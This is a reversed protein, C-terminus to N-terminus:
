VDEVETNFQQIHMTLYVLESEYVPKNLQQQMMKVIKVAINYCAPYQLKLLKELNRQEPPRDNIMVRQVAFSIHRVFRAYVLSDKDVQIKLDHEIIQVARAVVETMMNMERMTHNNISSHIHLAIFGKETDPFYVRLKDNLMDVVKTAIDFEKPYLAETEKLFPNAIVIGDELRKLAFIIHDTLSLLISDNVEGYAMEKITDVVEIVTKIVRDNTMGLLTKYREQEHYGRLEYIKEIKDAEIRQGQKKGFSIGKGILVVEEGYYNAILVNNNLAKEIIYEGM